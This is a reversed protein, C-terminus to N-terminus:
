RVTQSSLYFPVEFVADVDIAVGNRLAPQFRWKALAEQASRDLRDDLHQLLSIDVVHGDKGIVGWLRVKGELKEQVASAVYRPSVMEVPLPPRMDVAANGLDVERSAFWVMWSGSRSTLSPIQIAMTYVQRGFLRPDPVKATRVAQHDADSGTPTSMGRAVRMAAALSEPSTPSAHAVLIPPQPNRAGGQVTLSPIEVLAGATGGDSGKPQLKPGGSFAAKVSGPPEPVEVSKAPNLGAIVLSNDGIAGASAITPPPAAITAPEAPAAPSNPPPVFTHPPLPRPPASLSASPALEPAAPLMAPDEPLIRKPAAPPTFKREIRPAKLNLALPKSEISAAVQPADPLAPAPAPAHTPVAAPPTFKREIRLTKLKLALPKSEASAPVLPADPLAQTKAPAPTPAKPPVFQRVLRPPPALAVINPLPLPKNPAIEPSPALILQPPRDNDQRGVAISQDFRTRARPPHAQRRTEPPTVDPLKEALKYWVIKKENPQIEREYASKRQELSLAPALAIWALIWCHLCLSGM